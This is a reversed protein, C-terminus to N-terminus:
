EQLILKFLRIRDKKSLLNRKKALETAAEFRDYYKSNDTLLVNLNGKRYAVWDSTQEYQEKGCLCWDDEKLYEVTEELNYVLFLTDIDTDVVSPTCIYYSGTPCSYLYLHEPIM